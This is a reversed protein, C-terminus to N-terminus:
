RRWDLEKFKFGTATTTEILWLDCYQMVWDFAPEAPYAWGNRELRERGFGPVDLQPDLRIMFEILRDTHMTHLPSTGATSLLAGMVMHEDVQFATSLGRRQLKNQESMTRPLVPGLVGEIEHWTGVRAEAIAQALTGDDFSKHNGVMVLLASDRYFIVYLLEKSGRPTLHLHHTEFANLAYDKDGWELGRPKNNDNAKPRVYGFREIRDSLFPKLDDGAEIKKALDCV